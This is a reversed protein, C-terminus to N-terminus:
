LAIFGQTQELLEMFVAMSSKLFIHDQWAEVENGADFRCVAVGERRPVGAMFRIKDSHTHHDTATETSDTSPHVGPSDPDARNGPSPM